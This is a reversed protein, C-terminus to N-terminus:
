ASTCDRAKHNNQGCVRGGKLVKSCKRAGSACSKGKGKPCDGKNYAQCLADGNRLHAAYTGM